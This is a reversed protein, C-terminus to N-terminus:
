SSNCTKPRSKTCLTRGPTPTERSGDGYSLAMTAQALPTQGSYQARETARQQKHKERRLAASPAHTIFQPGPRHARSAQETVCGVHYLKRMTHHCPTTPVAATTVAKYASASYGRGTNRHPGAQGTPKVCPHCGSCTSGRIVQPMWSCPAPVRFRGHTHYQALEINLLHPAGTARDRM